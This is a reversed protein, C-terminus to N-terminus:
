IRILTLRGFRADRREEKREGEKEDFLFAVKM